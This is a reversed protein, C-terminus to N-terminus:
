FIVIIAIILMEYNKFLYILISGIIFFILSGFCIMAIKKTKLYKDGISFQYKVKESPSLVKELIKKTM